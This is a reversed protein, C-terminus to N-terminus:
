SNSVGDTVGVMAGLLPFGIGADDIQLLKLRKDPSALTGKEIKTLTDFDNCVVSGTNYIKVTWKDSILTGTGKYSCKLTKNNETRSALLGKQLYEQLKGELNENSRM